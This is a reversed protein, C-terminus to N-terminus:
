IKAATRHSEYEELSIETGRKLRYEEESMMCTSEPHDIVYYEIRWCGRNYFDEEIVKNYCRKRSDVYCYGIRM